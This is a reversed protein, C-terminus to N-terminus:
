SLFEELDQTTLGEARFTRHTEYSFLGPRQPTNQNYEFRETVLKGETIKQLSPLIPVSTMKM